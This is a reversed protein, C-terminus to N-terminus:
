SLSFRHSFPDDFNSKKLATSSFVFLWLWLHVPSRFVPIDLISIFWSYTNLKCFRDSCMWRPMPYRKIGSVSLSSHAHTPPTLTHAYRYVQLWFAWLITMAWAVHATPVERLSRYFSVSSAPVAKFPIDVVQETQPLQRGIKDSQVDFTLKQFIYSFSYIM